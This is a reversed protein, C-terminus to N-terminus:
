AGCRVKDSSQLLGKHLLRQFFHLALAPSGLPSGAVSAAADMLAAAVGDAARTLVQVSVALSAQMQSLVADWDSESFLRWCYAASCRLLGAHVAPEPNPSLVSHRSLELLAQREEASCELGHDAMAHESTPAPPPPVRAGAARPRLRSGETERQRGQVQVTYSPPQLSVDVAVVAAEEWVGDLKNQYWALDGKAFQPQLSSSAAAQSAAPPAVAHSPFCAVASDLVASGDEKCAQHCLRLALESLRSQRLLAADQRLLLATASLVANLLGTDRSDVIHASFFAAATAAASGGAAFASALLTAFASARSPGASSRDLAVALTQELLASGEDSVLHQTLSHVGATASPAAQLLTVATPAAQSQLAALLERFGVAQGLQLLFQPASVRSAMASLLDQQLPSSDCARWAAQVCSVAASTTAGQDSDGAGEGVAAHVSDAVAAVFSHQADSDARQM